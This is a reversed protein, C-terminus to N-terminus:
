FGWLCTVLLALGPAPYLRSLREVLTANADLRLALVAVGTVAFWVAGVIMGAVLVAATWAPCGILM